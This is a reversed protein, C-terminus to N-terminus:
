AFALLGGLFKGLGNTNEKGSSEAQSYQGADAILGGAGLSLKGLDSMHGLWNDLYTSALGERFQEMGKMAAGSRGLGMSTYKSTLADLGQDMLFKGGGQDYFGQPGSGLTQSLANFTQGFGQVGPDYGSKLYKYAKNGSESESSSKSGGFLNRNIDGLIGL